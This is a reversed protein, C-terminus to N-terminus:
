FAIQLRSEILNEAQRDAGGAAGGDFETREVDLAIKLNRNLWWNVGAGYATAARASSALAAFGETFAREDIALKHFRLVPQWAGIGGLGVPSDPVVGSFSANEGTLVYGTEVQWARNRLATAPGAGVQFDQRSDIYESLVDWSGLSYYLHPSWRTHRGNAVVTANYTFFTNQGSTVFRSLSANPAKDRGFSAGVGFGLGQLASGGSNRFPTFFVRGIGDKDDSTDPDRNTGDSPGNFVGVAYYTTGGLVDGSLQFGADRAPALESVFSREIFSTTNTDSQLFELGLPTKFRGATLKARPDFRATVFGDVLTAAGAGTFEEMFRFDYISYLTGELIPRVRRVTFTNPLNPAGDNIFERSEIHAYAGIHLLFDGDASSIVFGDKSNAAIRPPAGPGTAGPAGQAKKLEALQRELEQLRDEWSPRGGGAADAAPEASARSRPPTPLRLAM